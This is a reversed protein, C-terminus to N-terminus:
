PGFGKPLNGYLFEKEYGRKAQLSGNIWYQRHRECCFLYTLPRSYDNGMADHYNPNGTQTVLKYMEYGDKECDDWACMVFKVTGGNAAHDMNIAKKLVIDRRRAPLNPSQYPM